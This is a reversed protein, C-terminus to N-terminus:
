LHLCELIDMMIEKLAEKIGAPETIKESKVKDRLMDMITLSTNVGIDASILIEEIEEFFDEDIKIFAKAVADIKETIGQRTKTLGQKLKDFFGM